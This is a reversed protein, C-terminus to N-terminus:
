SFNQSNVYHRSVPLSLDFSILNTEDLCGLVSVCEFRGSHVEM